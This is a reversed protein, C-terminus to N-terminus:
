SAAHHSEILPKFNNQAINLLSIERKANEISHLTILIYSLEQAPSQM